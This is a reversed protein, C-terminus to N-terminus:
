APAGEPSPRRRRRLYERAGLAVAGSLILVGSKELLTLELSYYYWGAFGVFSAIALGVLVVERRHYGLALVTAAGVIGPTRWGVAGLLVAGAIAAVGTESRLTGRHARLIWAVLYAALATVGATLFVDPSRDHWPHDALIFALGGLFGAALAVGLPPRIARWRAGGRSPPALWTAITGAGLLLLLLIIFGPSHGEYAVFVACSTAFASALFRGVPDPMAVVVAANLALALLAMKQDRLHWADDAGFLVLAEAAVATALAAQVAFDNRVRSRAFCAAALFLLGFVLAVGGHKFVETIVFFGTLLAAALWAGLASLLRVYWPASGDKAAAQQFSRQLIAADDSSLTGEDVMRQVVERLRPRM